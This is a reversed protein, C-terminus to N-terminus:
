KPQNILTQLINKNLIGEKNLDFAIFGKPDIKTSLQYKIDDNAHQNLHTLLKYLSFLSITTQIEIPTESYAILTPIQNSVGSLVKQGAIALHLSVGEIELDQANPNSILLQIDFRPSLGIPGAPAISILTVDINQLQQIKTCASLLFVSALLLIKCTSM